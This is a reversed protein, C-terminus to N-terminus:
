FNVGIQGVIALGSLNIDDANDARHNIYSYQVALGLDINKQVPFRVGAEITATPTRGNDDMKVSEGDYTKYEIEMDSWCIGIKAAGYLKIKNNFRHELMVFPGFTIAKIDLSFDYIGCGSHSDTESFFSTYDLFVGIGIKERIMYCYDIGFTSGTDYSLSFGDAPEFDETPFYVGGNLGVRHRTTDNSVEGAYVTFCISLVMYFIVFGGITFKKM